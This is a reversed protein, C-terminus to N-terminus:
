KQKEHTERRRELETPGFSPTAPSANEMTRGTLETIDAMDDTEARIVIEEFLM